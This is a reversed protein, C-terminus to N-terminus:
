DLTIFGAAPRLAQTQPDVALVHAGIVGTRRGPGFAVPPIVGTDYAYLNELAEVLRERSAMRGSRKLGEILVGAAAYAAAQLAPQTAPLGSQRRLDDLAQRGSPTVDGPLSPLALYLPAAGALGAGVVHGVPALFVASWGAAAASQRLAVFEEPSGLFFVVRVGRARWEAIATDWAPGPAHRQLHQWGHRALQSEVVSALQRDRNPVVLVTEPNDLRLHRVAFEALARCQERGGPQLRFTYRRDDSEGALPGVIPLAATEALNFLEESAAPLLPSVLAFVDAALLLEAMPKEGAADISVLELQRGHVGGNANARAFVALVVGEALRGSEALPGSRPLITGIRLVGAALGPDHDDEIRQLYAALAASDTRSLAFRPMAPNLRQGAPDLGESLTRYFREDNFPPHARVGDHDHGYPKTLERWTIEPPRLGGEPRGKGDMGHCNACPVMKGPVILSQAGVRASLDGGPGIGERYLRRGAAELPTLDLSLVSGAQLLGAVLLGAAM